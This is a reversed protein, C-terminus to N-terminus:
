LRPRCSTDTLDSPDKSSFMETWTHKYQHNSSYAHGIGMVTAKPNMMGECHGNSKKWQELAGKATSSGAAINESNATTGQREAREGFSTGDQSAHAFYNNKAMDESHLKSAKWLQCDFALPTRNPHFRKGHPCTFGTKRLQNLLKFHEWEVDSVQGGTASGGAARSYTNYSDSEFEDCADDYEWYCKGAKRGTGFIFYNCKSGAKKICAAGCAQSDRFRGLYKEGGGSCEMGKKWRQFPSSAALGEVAQVGSASDTPSSPVLWYAAVALISALALAAFLLTQKRSVPQEKPIEDGEQPDEVLMLANQEVDKDDVGM